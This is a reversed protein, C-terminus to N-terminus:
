GSFGIKGVADKKLIFYDNYARVGNYLCYFIVDSLMSFITLSYLMPAFYNDMLTLHGRARKRNLVRHGKISGKFNLVHEEASEGDVQVAQMMAKEDDHEDEEDSSSSEMFNNYFYEDDSDM